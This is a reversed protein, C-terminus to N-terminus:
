AQHEELACSGCIAIDFHGAQEAMQALIDVLYGLVIFASEFRKYALEMLVDVGLTVPSYTSLAFAPERDRLEIIREPPVGIDALYRQLAYRANFVGFFAQAYNGATFHQDAQGFFRYVTGLWDDSDLLRKVADPLGDRGPRRGNKRAAQQESHAGHGRRSNSPRSASRQAKTVYDGEM